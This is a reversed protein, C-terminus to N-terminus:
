LKGEGIRLSVVLKDWNPSRGSSASSMVTVCSLGSYMHHSAHRM